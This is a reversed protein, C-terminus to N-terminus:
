RGDVRGVLRYAWDGGAQFAAEVLGPRLGPPDTNWVFAVSFPDTM